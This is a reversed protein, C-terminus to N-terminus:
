QHLERAYLVFFGLVSGHILFLLALLRSVKPVDRLELLGLVVAAVGFVGVLWRQRTTETM